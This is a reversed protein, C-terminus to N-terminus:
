TVWCEAWHGEGLDTRPPPTHRCKAEVAPCRPHFPCGPPPHAPDPVDGDLVLKKGRRKPDIVPSAALLARTYPHAPNEFVAAKPGMEVLRGLYMVAVHDSVHGVVSLDHSIFLYSLANSDQLDQLLNVIQAQVSVDLASVPEDCVVLDPNLAIARAISVRQRQGGSLQHPYRDLHASTLGVRELLSSAARRQQERSGVRHVRLPEEVIGAVTMRPDLSGYPDQFVVQMRRRVKRMAAKPLKLLDQGDFVVEGADPEILRLMCRAATTKGCGSEGVLGLTQGREITFSVRDVAVVAGKSFTKRLGEVRLLAAPARNPAHRNM